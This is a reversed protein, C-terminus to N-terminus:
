RSARGCLPGLCRARSWGESNPIHNDYAPLPKLDPKVFTTKAAESFLRERLYHLLLTDKGMLAPNTECFEASSQFSQCSCAAFILRLFAVTITERYGRDIAEPVEHAANLVNQGIRMRALAIELGYQVAYLYAVRVHARHNWLQPALDACEFAAILDADSLEVGSDIRPCSLRVATNRTQTSRLVVLERSLLWIGDTLNSAHKQRTPGICRGSAVEKLM